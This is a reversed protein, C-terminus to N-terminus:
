NIALYKGLGVTSLGAGRDPDTGDTRGRRMRALNHHPFPTTKATKRQRQVDAPNTPNMVFIGDGFSGQIISVYNRAAILSYQVLM